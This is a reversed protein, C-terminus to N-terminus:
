KLSKDEFEVVKFRISDSNWEVKLGEGMCRIEFESGAKVSDIAISSANKQEINVVDHEGLYVYKKRNFDYGHVDLMKYGSEHEREKAVIKIGHFAQLTQQSTKGTMM